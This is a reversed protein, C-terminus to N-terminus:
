CPKSRLSNASNRFTPSLAAFGSAPAQGQVAYGDQCDLNVFQDLYRVGSIEYTLEYGPHGGITAPGLSVRRYGPKTRQLNADVSRARGEPTSKVQPIPDVLVATRSDDPDTWTTRKLGGATSNDRRQWNKPVEMTFISGTERVPTSPASASTTNAQRPTTSGTAPRDKSAGGGSSLVIVAVIVAVVAVGILGPLVYGRRRTPPAPPAPPAAAAARTEAVRTPPLDTPQPATAATPAAPSVVTEATPRAEESAVTDPLEGKVAAELAGALAAASAFRDDPNKACARQVVADMAPPIDPRIELLTPFPENVHAHIRAVDQERPFPVRGTLTQFLMCGFSYIDSRANGRSGTMQEPAMYDLTGVFMGTRTVTMEGAAAGEGRAIGFDTLYVHEHEADGPAAILVNAPKVDRHVLGRQHAAHLAFAVPTLLAAARAPDLRGDRDLLARLDIGEVYRTTLFLVGDREGAEYVPLVNAHEISAALRAERQFRARFARDLALDPAIVKLAVLRDLALQTARYVVGMGGRGAVGEIRCGAFESGVSLDAM